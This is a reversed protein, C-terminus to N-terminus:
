QGAITAKIGDLFAQKEANTLKAEPHMLLYQSPPMYGGSVVESIEHKERTTAWDSFNLHRRGSDVDRQVLWSVPAINSYWPWVTENSHCDYCARVAIEKTAPSDWNPEAVVPPNTHDRNYPIFQIGIFGVLAIIVIWKLIKM